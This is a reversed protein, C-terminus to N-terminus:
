RINGRTENTVKEDDDNEDSDIEEENVFEEDSDESEDEAGVPNWEDDNEAFSKCSDSDSDTEEVDM